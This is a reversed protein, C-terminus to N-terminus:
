ARPRADVRRIWAGLREHRDLALNEALIAHFRETDAPDHLM